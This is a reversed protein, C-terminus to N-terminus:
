RRRLFGSIYSHARGSYSQVPDANSRSRTLKQARKTLSPTLISEQEAPPSAFRLEALGYFLGARTRTRPEGRLLAEQDNAWDAQDGRFWSSRGPRRGAVGSGQKSVVGLLRRLAPGPSCSGTAPSIPGPDVVLAAETM